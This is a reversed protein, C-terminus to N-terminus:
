IRIIKYCFIGNETAKKIRNSDIDFIGTVNFLTKDILTDIHYQAMGGYGVIAINLKKMLILAKKNTKVKEQM